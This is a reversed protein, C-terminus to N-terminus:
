GMGLISILASRSFRQHLPLAHVESGSLRAGAEWM